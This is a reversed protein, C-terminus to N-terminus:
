RSYRLFAAETRQLLSPDAAEVGERSSVCGGGIPNVLRCSSCKSSCPLEGATGVRATGLLPAEVRHITRSPSAGSLRGNELGIEFHM